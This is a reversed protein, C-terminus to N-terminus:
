RIVVIRKKDLLKSKNKWQVLYIGPALSFDNIIISKNAKFSKVLRGRIDKIEFLGETVNDGTQMLKIRISGHDFCPNPFVSILNKRIFQNHGRNEVAALSKCCSPNYDDWNTPIPYPINYYDECLRALALDNIYEEINMYGDSDHDDANDTADNKNFGMADEWFDPMGDLDADDPPAPGTQILPDNDMKLVGTSNRVDSITRQNMSDRPWAGVKTLVSEYAQEASETTVNAMTHPTSVSGSFSWPQPTGGIKPVYINDHDHLGERIVAVRPTVRGSGDLSVPGEKIYSGVINMNLPPIVSSIWITIWGDYCVNNRYDVMGNDPAAQNGWHMHPGGRDKHHAWLNHHLTVYNTPVYAMLSGYTQGESSNAITCWQVTWHHSACVSFCEDNGGSFDCHDFIFNNAQHMNAAHGNHAKARLRLFRFVGDHFNSQYSWFPDQRTGTFSIGGPSTQGAVTVNSFPETLTWASTTHLDIAGSVRFVIIRPMAKRFADNFSGIGLSNTNTVVYVNGGRGGPTEAGWGEANPFAPLSHLTYFSFHLIFFTFIFLLNKM